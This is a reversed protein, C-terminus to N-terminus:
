RKVPLEKPDLGLHSIVIEVPWHKHEDFAKRADEIALLKESRNRTLFRRVTKMHLYESIGSNTGNSNELAEKVIEKLYSRYVGIDM